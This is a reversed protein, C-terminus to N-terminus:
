GVALDDQAEALRLVLRKDSSRTVIRFRASPQLLRGRRTASRHESVGALGPRLALPRGEHDGIGPAIACDSQNREPDDGVARARDRDRHKGLSAPLTNARGRHSQDSVPRSSLASELSDLGLSVNRVGSRTSHDLFRAENALAYESLMAFRMTNPMVALHEGENSGIQGVRRPSTRRPWPAAETVCLPEDVARKAAVFMTGTLTRANNRSTNRSM